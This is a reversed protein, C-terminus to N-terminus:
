LRAPRPPRARRRRGGSSRRPTVARGVVALAGAALLVLTAPEPVVGLTAPPGVAFDVEATPPVFGYPGDAAVLPSGQLLWAADIKDYDNSNIVGDYNFDGVSWRFGGPPTGQGNGYLLWNTDICDYDNSNVVGDLNADGWWTYRVLISTADPVNQGMFTTKGGVNPDTNDIVGVAALTAGAATSSTIGFGDWYGATRNLGTRIWDSVQTMPSSGTYNLILGGEALDLRSDSADISLGRTTVVRPAGSLVQATGASVTLNALHQTAGFAVAAGASTVSVALNDAGGPGADSNFRVTGGAVSMAAETGYYQAGGIALTGPGTKAISGTALVVGGALSLNASATNVTAVGTFATAGTVGLCYDNGGTVTLTLDGEVNLAGVSLTRGTEAVLANVNATANSKMRVTGAFAADADYRLDISGGKLTVEGTGLAGPATGRVTGEEIALGGSFLNTAALVATGEGRKTISKSGYITGALTLDGSSRTNLLLPAALTIPVGITHAGNCTPKAQRNVEIGALGTAVNFTLSGTGDLTYRNNDDIRLTGLTVATGVTVTRDASIADGLAAWQDVGNPVGASWNAAASWLGSSDVRWVDTNIVGNIFGAYTSLRVADLYDPDHVGTVSNRFWSQSIPEGHEVGRTLGAVRWDGTGGPSVDIFWGGGSDYKAPAAERARYASGGAGDFDATIVKTTFTGDAVEGAPTEEIRNAGWRLPQDFFAGTWTYGYVVQTPTKLLDGRGQGWGGIVVNKLREDTGTYVPTYYALNADLGGLTLRMVRLDGQAHDFVEAAMYTVGDIIVPWGTGYGQHCTTIVYNPGVPVCCANSVWRGIAADPPRVAPSGEDGPHQILGRVPGAAALCVTLALLWAWGVQRKFGGM